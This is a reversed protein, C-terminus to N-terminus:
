CTSGRGPPRPRTRRRRTTPPPSTYFGADFAATIAPGATGTGNAGAFATVTLVHNGSPVYWPLFDTTSGVAEGAISYPAFNETRVPVGDVAFV